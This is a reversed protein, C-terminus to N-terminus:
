IARMSRSKYMYNTHPYHVGINNKISRLWKLTILNVGYLGTGIILLAM